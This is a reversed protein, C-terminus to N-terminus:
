GKRVIGFKGTRKGKCPVCPWPMTKAAEGAAKKNEFSGFPTFPRQTTKAM